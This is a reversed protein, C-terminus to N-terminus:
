LGEDLMGELQEILKPVDRRATNWVIDLNIDHYGHILRHRMAVIDRWRVDQHAEILEKTLGSAAEGLVELLRIVAFTLVRDEEFVERTKGQLISQIDRAADLMHRLRVEDPRQM